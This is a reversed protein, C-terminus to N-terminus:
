NLMVYKYSGDVPKIIDALGKTYYVTTDDILVADINYEKALAAAGNIGAAFMATSLIDCQGADKGVATASNLGNQVPYGSKPDIIHHYREGDLEFYREYNGSTVVATDSVSLVAASVGPQKPDMIGIEWRAGNKKGLAYINGGLNILASSEGEARMAKVIMDTTYGKAAAGLTVGAGEKKIKATNTEIDVEINQIGVLDLADSINDPIVGPNNKIDWVDCVPKISIDFYEGHRNTYTIADCLLSVTDQSLQASGNQNLKYIEANPNEASFMKDAEYVIQVYGNINDATSYTTIECVTDMADYITRSYRRPRMILVAVAICVALIGAM